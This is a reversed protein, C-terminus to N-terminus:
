QMYFSDEEIRSTPPSTVPPIFEQVKHYLNFAHGLPTVYPANPHEVPRYHARSSRAYDRKPVNIAIDESYALIPPYITLIHVPSLHYTFNPASIIRSCQILQLDFAINRLSMFLFGKNPRVLIIDVHYTSDHFIRILTFFAFDLVIMFSSPM